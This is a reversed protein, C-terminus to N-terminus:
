LLNGSVETGAIEEGCWFWVEGMSVRAIQPEVKESGM